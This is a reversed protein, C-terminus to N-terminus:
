SLLSLLDNVTRADSAADMDVQTVNLHSAYDDELIATLNLLDLSDLGLDEKLRAEPLVRAEAVDFEKKLVEKLIDLPQM